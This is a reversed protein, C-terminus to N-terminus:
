KSKNSFRNQMSAIAEEAEKPLEGTATLPRLADIVARGANKVDVVEIQVPIANPDRERAMREAVAYVIEDVGDYFCGILEYADESITSPSVTAM